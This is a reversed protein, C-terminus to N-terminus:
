FSEPNPVQDGTRSEIGHQVVDSIDLFFRNTLEDLLALCADYKAEKKAPLSVAGQEFLIPLVALADKRSSQYQISTDRAAYSNGGGSNGSPAPAQAPAASSVQLSGKTVNKYQGNMTVSFSVQDGENANPKEFGYGYWESDVQINWAKGRNMIRNLTGTIQSM